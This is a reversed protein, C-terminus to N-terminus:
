PVAHRGVIGLADVFAAVDQFEFDALGRRHEMKEPWWQSFLRTVLVTRMGVARAGTHEDSGGDGVFISDSASVGLAALAHHYIRADPKRYGVQYSFITVDVRSGIPSQPWSEVDDAGADSVIATRIGVARLADLAALVSDEVKVLGLEFRRQRSEVAELIRDEGVSPDISHTVLRMAEVSDTVRGLCRGFVDEDYYLRQWEDGSVGLIEPVPREGTLSPPPVCVLTHFLDFLVAKPRQM